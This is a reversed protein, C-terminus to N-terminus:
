HLLFGVFTVVVMTETAFAKIHDGYGRTRKQFFNPPLLKQAPWVIQTHYNDLYKMVDVDKLQPLAKLAITFANVEYQM